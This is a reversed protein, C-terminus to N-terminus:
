VIERLFKGTYSEECNVVDEVNWQAVVKWWKDGWDPWIDIVHDCIKIMDLNHEIVFVSNWKDVLSQIVDILKEIDSFYLWTTPEDLLYITKWTQIKALETALKVRQAEWWSLQTSPQWLKIYWLWVDRLTEVLTKVKPIAKFFDVAEDVTMELVEYINKWRYTVELTERNYRKWQCEECKVYMDPMFHMEIKKM